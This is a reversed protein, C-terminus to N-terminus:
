RSLDIQVVRPASSAKDSHDHALYDASAIVAVMGLGAVACPVARPKLWEWRAALWNKLDTLLAIAFARVERPRVTAVPFEVPGHNFLVIETNVPAPNASSSKTRKQSRKRRLQTYALTPRRLGRPRYRPLQGIV